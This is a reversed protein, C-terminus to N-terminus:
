QQLKDPPVTINIGHLFWEEGAKELTADFQGTFDGRYSIAGTVEAVTGQAVDPNTNSVALIKLNNVALSQYGEFLVFNNGQIMEELQTKSMQRRVRQSFVAYAGESNKEDMAAMFEDLVAEVPATESSVRNLGIAVLAGGITLCACITAAVIGVYFKVSRKPKEPQQFPQEFAEANSQSQFEDGSQITEDDM